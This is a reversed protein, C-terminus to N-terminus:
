EKIKIGAPLDGDPLDPVYGGRPNDFCSIRFLEGTSPRLIVEEWRVTDVGGAGKSAFVMCDGEQFQGRGISPLSNLPIVKVNPDPVEPKPPATAGGQEDDEHDGPEQGNVTAKMVKSPPMVPHLIGRYVSRQDTREIPDGHVRNPATMVVRGLQLKGVANQEQGENTLVVFERSAKGMRYSIGRGLEEFTTLKGFRWHHCQKVEDMLRRWVWHHHRKNRLMCWRLVEGANEQTMQDTIVSLLHNLTKLKQHAPRWTEDTGIERSRRSQSGVLMVIMESSLNAKALTHMVGAPMALVRCAGLFERTKDSAGEISGRGAQVSEFLFDDASAVSHDGLEQICELAHTQVMSEILEGARIQDNINGSVSLLWGVGVKHLCGADVIKDRIQRRTYEGDIMAFLRPQNVIACATEISLSYGWYIKGLCEKILREERWPITAILGIAEVESVEELRLGNQLCWAPESCQGLHGMGGVEDHVATAFKEAFTTKMEIREEM